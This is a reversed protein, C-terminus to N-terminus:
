SQPRVEVFDTSKIIHLRQSFLDVLWRYPLCHERLKKAARTNRICSPIFRSLHWHNGARIIDYTEKIKAMLKSDHTHLSIQFQHLKAPGYFAKRDAYLLIFRDKIPQPDLSRPTADAAPLGQLSSAPIAGLQSM